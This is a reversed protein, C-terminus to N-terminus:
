LFSSSVSLSNLLNHSVLDINLDNKLFGKDKIYGSSWNLQLLLTLPLAPSYFQLPLNFNLKILQSSLMFYKQESGEKSGGRKRILKNAYVVKEM